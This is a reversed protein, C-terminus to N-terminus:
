KNDEPKKVEQKSGFKKLNYTFTFLLYKKLVSNQLDEVYTETVNRTISNNRTLLDFVSIKFEAARNKLLKYGITGGWLPIQQNFQGSLGQFQYHTFDSGILFGKWPMITLKLATLGIYYNNNATQQISNKVDNYNSTYSVTFDIKESINSSVVIGANYNWTTSYNIIQNILAPSYLYNVGGNISLNCKIKSVPLSYTIMSRVAYNDNLNVPSSLQAGRQLLIGNTLLTDSFAITTKNSIYNQNATANLMVFISKGSEQWTSNSRFLV